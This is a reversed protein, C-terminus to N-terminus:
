RRLVLPHRRGRWAIATWSHTHVSGLRNGVRTRPTQLANGRPHHDTLPTVPQPLSNGWLILQCPPLSVCHRRGFFVGGVAERALAAHPVAVLFPHLMVHSPSAYCADVLVSAAPPLPRTLFCGGGVRQWSFRVLILAFTPESTEPFPSGAPDLVTVASVNVAVFRVLPFDAVLLRLPLCPGCWGAFLDCVVLEETSSIVDEFEAQSNVQVARGM